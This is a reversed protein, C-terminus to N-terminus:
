NAGDFNFLHFIPKLSENEMEKSYNVFPYNNRLKIKLEVLKPQQTRTQNKFLCLFNSMARIKWKETKSATPGYWNWRPPPAPPPSTSANVMPM